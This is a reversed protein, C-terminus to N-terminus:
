KRERRRRKRRRREAPACSRPGYAAAAPASRHHPTAALSACVTSRPSCVHRSCAPSFLTRQPGTRQTATHAGSQELRHATDRRDHAGTTCATDRVPSTQLACRTVESQSPSIVNVKDVLGGRTRVDSMGTGRDRVCHEEERNTDRAADRAASERAGSPRGCRPPRGVTGRRLSCVAVQAQRRAAPGRGGGGSASCSIRGQRRHAQPAPPSLARPAGVGRKDEVGGIRRRRIRSPQQARRRSRRPLLLPPPPPPPARPAAGNPLSPAPPACGRRAARRAAASFAYRHGAATAQRSAQGGGTHQYWRAHCAQWPARESHCHGARHRDGVPGDCSGGVWRRSPQQSGEEKTRPRGGRRGSRHRGRARQSRREHPTARGTGTPPCRRRRPPPTGPVM